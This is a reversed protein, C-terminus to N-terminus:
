ATAAVSFLLATSSPFTAAATGTTPKQPFSDKMSAGNEKVQRQYSKTKLPKPGFRELVLSGSNTGCATSLLIVPNHSFQELIAGEMRGM